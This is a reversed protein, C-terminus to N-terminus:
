LLPYNRINNVSSQQLRLKLNMKMTDLICAWLLLLILDLMLLSKQIELGILCWYGRVCVPKEHKKVPLTLDDRPIPM